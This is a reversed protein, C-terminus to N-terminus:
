DTMQNTLHKQFFDLFKKEVKEFSLNNFNPEETTVIDFDTNLPYWENGTIKYKVYIEFIPIKFASALHVASTDPTFLLDLKSIMAAFKDFTDPALIPCRGQAIIEAKEVDSPTCLVITVVNFGKVSNLLKTFNKIGWFRAESGASINIGFLFKEGPNIKAIEKEAFSLSEAGPKYTINIEKKSYDINLYDAFQLLWEAIRFKEKNLIQITESYIKENGKAFSLTFTNKLSAIIFSVTTSVDPHTDIVLPFNFKNLMKITRFFGAFGKPFEFIKKVYPNNEFVFKNKRDALVFIEFGGFKSLVEILPTTILADGIRNLRILLIKDGAKLEPKTGKRGKSFILLFNLLFHRLAVEIEKLM